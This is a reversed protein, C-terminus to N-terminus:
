APKRLSIIAKKVTDYIVPLELYDIIIAIWSLWIPLIILATGSFQTIVIEDTIWFLHLWQSNLLILFLVSKWRFEKQLQHIYFISVLIIAPIETYDVFVMIIEWIGTLEFYSQGVLRFMVVDTALWYLHFLQWVFLGATIYLNLKYHCKYWDFFKKFINMSFKKKTKRKRCSAM